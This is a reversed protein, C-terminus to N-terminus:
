LTRNCGEKHNETKTTTTRAPLLLSSLLSCLPEFHLHARECVSRLSVAFSFPLPFLLLLLLFPWLSFDCASRKSPFAVHIVRSNWFLKEVAGFSNCIMLMILTRPTQTISLGGFGSCRWGFLWSLGLPGSSCIIRCKHVCVCVYVCQTHISISKATQHMLHLTPSRRARCKATAALVLSQRSDWVYNMCRKNCTFLNWLVGLQKAHWIQSVRDLLM